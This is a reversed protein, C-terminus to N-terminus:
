QNKYIGRSYKADQLQQKQYKVDALDAASATYKKYVKVKGFEAEVVEISSTQFMKIKGKVDETITFAGKEGTVKYTIGKEIIAKM